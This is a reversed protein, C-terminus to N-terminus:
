QEAAKLPLTVKFMTGVGIQSEVIIQGGHLDVCKKVIALGLGTGPITGANTARYFSQM